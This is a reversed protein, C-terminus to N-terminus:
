VTLGLAALTRPGVISDADLGKSTQWRAIAGASDGAQRRLECSAALATRGEPWLRTPSAWVLGRDRQDLLWATAATAAGWGQTYTTWGRGDPGLDRRVVGREVLRRWQGTALIWRRQAGKLSAGPRPVGPYVQPAHVTVPSREGLLAEWPLHHWDPCDHSTLGIAVSPATEAIAGLLARAREGLAARTTADSSTWGPYGPLASGELNLLLCEIGLRLARRAWARGQAQVDALSDDALGNCGPSAWLPTDPLIRRAEEVYRETSDMPWLHLCVFQPRVARLLDASESLALDFRKSRWLTLGIM